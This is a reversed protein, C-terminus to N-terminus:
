SNDPRASMRRQGAWIAVLTIITTFILYLAPSRPDGTHATLWTFIFPACGGFLAIGLSYGLSLGVGRGNIPFVLGMFGNLPANYPLAVLNFLVPLCFLTLEGPWIHLIEFAPYAILAMLLCSCVMIMSNRQRDFLNAFFLRLPIIAMLILYLLFIAALAKHAQMHLETTAYTPLYLALYTQATGIAVMGAAILIAGPLIPHKDPNKQQEAKFSPADELKRRLYLVFLGGVAGLAFAIRFDEIGFITTGHMSLIWAVSVALLGSVNQSVGQFSAAHTERGASHEIMLSTSSGFEGGLAFGQVLRAFLIGLPALLGIQQYGPLVAMLLAAASMLVVSLVMCFVRGKVDALRGLILAGVPRAFFSVAFTGFTLLLKSTQDHGPFFTAALNSAFYGYVMFDYFELANGASAATILKARAWRGQQLGMFEDGAPKLRMEVEAACCAKCRKCPM